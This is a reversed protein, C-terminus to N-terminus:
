GPKKPDRTWVVIVGCIGRGNKDLEPPIESIGVYVELAEIDDASFDDLVGSYPMNHVYMTPICARGGNGRTM